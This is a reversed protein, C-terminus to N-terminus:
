PPASSLWDNWATLTESHVSFPKAGGTPSDNRPLGCRVTSPTDLPRHLAMGAPQPVPREQLEQYEPGGFRTFVYVKSM